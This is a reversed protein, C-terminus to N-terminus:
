VSHALYVPLDSFRFRTACMWVIHKEDIPDAATRPLKWLRFKTSEPMFVGRYGSRNLFSFSDVFIGVAVNQVELTTWVCFPTASTAHQAAGQSWRTSTVSDISFGGEWVWASM